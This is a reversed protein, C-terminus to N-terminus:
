ENTVVGTAIIVGNGDRVPCLSGVPQGMSVPYVTYYAGNRCVNGMLVGNPAYWTVAGAYAAGLMLVAIVAFQKLKM